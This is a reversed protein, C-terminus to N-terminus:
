KKGSTVVGVNEEADKPKKLINTAEEVDGWAKARNSPRNKNNYRSVYEGQSNEEPNAEYDRKDNNRYGQNYGRGRKNDRYDQKKVYRQSGEYNAKESSPEKRGEDVYETNEGGWAENRPEYKKHQNEETNYAKRYREGRRGGRRGTVKTFTGEDDKVSSEQEKVENKEISEPKVTEVEHTKTKDDPVVDVQKVEELHKEFELDKNLTDVPKANGFPNSKPKAQQPEKKSPSEEGPAITIKGGKMESTKPKNDFKREYKKEYKKDNEYRKENDFRKEYNGREEYDQRRGGRRGGRRDGGRRGRDGGGRSQGVEVFLTRGCISQGNKEVLKMADEMDFIKVSAFGTCRDREVILEIKSQSSLGIEKILDEVIVSYSLNNLYLSLPFTSKNIKELLMDKKWDKGPIHPKSQHVVKAEQDSSEEESDDAWNAKKQGEM